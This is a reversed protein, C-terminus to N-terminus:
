IYIKLYYNLLIYRVIFHFHVNIFRVTQVKVFLKIRKFKRLGVLCNMDSDKIPETNHETINEFTMLWVYTYICLKAFFKRLSKGM